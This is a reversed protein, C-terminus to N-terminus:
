PAEPTTETTDPVVCQYPVAVVDKIGDVQCYLMVNAHIIKAKHGNFPILAAPGNDLVNIIVQSGQQLKIEAQEEAIKDAEQNLAMAARLKANKREVIRLLFYTLVGIGTFAGITFAGLTELM